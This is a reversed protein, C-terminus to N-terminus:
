FGPSITPDSVSPHSMCGILKIRAVNTDEFAGLSRIVGNFVIDVTLIQLLSPIFDQIANSPSAIGVIEANGLPDLFDEEELVGHLVSLNSEAGSPKVENIRRVITEGSESHSCGPLLM